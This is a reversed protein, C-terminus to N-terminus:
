KKAPKLHVTRDNIEYAVGLPDLLLKLLEEITAEKLKLSVPKDLDIGAAKLAEADYEFTLKGQSPGGLYQLVATAPKNEITGTYRELHLPKLPPSNAPAAKDPVRGGRRIIDVLEHMEIPGSVIVKGSEARASLDPIQEQWREIAAAPSLGRPVSYTREIAVREPAPEIRVGRGHDTWSFTLDFQILVLSLAEIANAEPLVAAGWLDHPIKERGDISVAYQESLRSLIDTPRDLDNWRFTNGRTLATRRSEPIASAKDALEDTRLKTLTRLNAASPVPGLYVCNGVVSAGASWQGALRELATRLPEGAASATRFCSPDLRRDPLIAARRATQIAEVITRLTAEDGWSASLPQEIAKRFAAGTVFTIQDDATAFSAAAALIFAPLILRLFFRPYRLYARVSSSLWTSFYSSSGGIFVSACLYSLLGGPDFRHADTHM